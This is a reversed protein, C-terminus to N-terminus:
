KKEEEGFTQSALTEVLKRMKELVPEIQAISKAGAISSKLESLEKSVQEKLKKKNQIESSNGLRKVAM